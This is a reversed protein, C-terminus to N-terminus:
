AALENMRSASPLPMEKSAIDSSTRTSRGTREETGHSERDGSYPVVKGPTVREETCGARRGSAVHLVLNFNMTSMIVSPMMRWGSGSIM